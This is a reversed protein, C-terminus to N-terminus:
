ELLGSNNCIKEHVTLWRPQAAFHRSNAPQLRSYPHPFRPDGTPMETNGRCHSHERTQNSAVQQQRRGRERGCVLGLPTRGGGWRRGPRRGTGLALRRYRAHRRGLRLRRLRRGGRLRGGHLRDGGLDPRRLGGRGLGSRDLGAIRIPQDAEVLRLGLGKQTLGLHAGLQRRGSDPTVHTM